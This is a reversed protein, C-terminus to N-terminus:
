YRHRRHKHTRHRYYRRESYGQHCAPSNTGSTCGYRQLLDADQESVPGGARANARAHELEGAEVLGGASAAGVPLAAFGAASALILALLSRKKM